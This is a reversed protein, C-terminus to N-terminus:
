PAPRTTPMRWPGSLLTDVGSCAVIASLMKLLLEAEKPPAATMEFWTKSLDYPRVRLLKVTRLLEAERWPPAKQSCCTM